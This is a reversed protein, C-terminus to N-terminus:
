SLPQTGCDVLGDVDTFITEGNSKKGITTVLQNLLHEDPFFSLLRWVDIQQQGSYELIEETEGERHCQGRRSGSAAVAEPFCASARAGRNEATISSARRPALTAHAWVVWGGPRDTRVLPPPRPPPAVVHHHTLRLDSAAACRVFYFPLSLSSLPCWM